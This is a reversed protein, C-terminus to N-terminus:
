YEERLYPERAFQKGMAKSTLGILSRLLVLFSHAMIVPIVMMFPLLPIHSIFSYSPTNFFNRAHLFTGVAYILVLLMGLFASVADLVAKPRERMKDRFLGIRMHGAEYWTYAFACSFIFVMLIQTIEYAGVLGGLNLGIAVFLKRVTVMVLTIAMAILMCLTVLRGLWVSAKYLFIESFWNGIKGLM